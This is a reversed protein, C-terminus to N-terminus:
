KEYTSLENYFSKSGEFSLKINHKNIHYKLNNKILAFSEKFEEYGRTHYKKAAYRKVDYHGFGIIKLEELNQFYHLLLPMLIYSFKCFNRKPSIPIYYNTTLDCNPNIFTNYDTPIFSLTKYSKLHQDFDLTLISKYIQPEKKLNNCTYGLKFFGKLNNKYLDGVLLTIDKLENNKIENIYFRITNPDIFTWFDSTLNNNLFFRLSDGFSYTTFGENKYKIIDEKSFNSLDNSPGVLLLKTIM